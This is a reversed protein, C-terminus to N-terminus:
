VVRSTEDCTGETLTSPLCTPGKGEFNIVSNLNATYAKGTPTGSFTVNGIGILADPNLRLFTSYEGNVTFSGTNFRVSSFGNYVKIGEAGTGIFTGGNLYAASSYRCTLGASNELGGFTCNEAVLYADESLNLLKFTIGYASLAMHYASVARNIVVSHGDAYLQIADNRPFPFADSTFDTLFRLRKWNGTSLHEAREVAKAITKYPREESGDGTTDSGDASLNIVSFTDGRGGGSYVTRCM